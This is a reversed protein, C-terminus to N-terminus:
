AALPESERVHPPFYGDGTRFHYAGGVAHTHAGITEVDHPNDVVLTPDIDIRGEDADHFVGLHHGQRELLPGYHYRAMDMARHFMKPSSGIPVSIAPVDPTRASLAYLDANSEIPQGSPAHWTGGGWPEQVRQYADNKIADWNADLGTTPQPTSALEHLRQQGEAALQEFEEPSVPRSNGRAEDQTIPVYSSSRQDPAMEHTWGMAKFPDGGAMGTGQCGYGKYTYGYGGQYGPATDEDQGCGREGDHYRNGPQWGSGGCDICARETPETGRWPKPPVGLAQHIAESEPHFGMNVGSDWRGQGPYSHTGYWEVGEPTQTGYAVPPTKVWRKGAQFQDRWM